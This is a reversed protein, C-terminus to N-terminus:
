DQADESADVTSLFFACHSIPWQYIVLSVNQLM